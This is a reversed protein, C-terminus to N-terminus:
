RKLATKFMEISKKGFGALEFTGDLVAGEFVPWTKYKEIILNAKSESIGPFAL